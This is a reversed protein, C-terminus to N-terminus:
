NATYSGIVQFVTNGSYDAFDVVLWTPSRSVALMQTFLISGGEVPQDVTWQAIIHEPYYVSDAPGDCLYVNVPLHAWVTNANITLKAYPRDFSLGDAAGFIFHTQPAVHGSFSTSIDNQQLTFIPVLSSSSWYPGYPQPATPKSCSNLTLIVSLAFIIQFIKKIYIKM